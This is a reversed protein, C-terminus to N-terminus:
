LIIKKFNKLWSLVQHAPMPKSLWYGQIYDCKMQSLIKATELNEVGEAIVKLELLHGLDITSRVIALNGSESCLKLIFTKDIKLENVPLKTLQALSSYGTGFDDIALLIGLNSIDDLVKITTATDQMATSETIEISLQWPKIDYTSFLYSLKEPLTPDTLDSTSLNIAVSLLHGRQKWIHLQQFINKLMWQSLISMNGSREALEIFEDPFILGLTPHYWRMLAEFHEVRGSKIDLKPQYEIWFEHNALAPKLSNIIIEKRRYVEELEDTYLEIRVDKNRAQQLAIDARRLLTQTDDGNLPHSVQGVSFFPNIKINEGISVPIALTQFLLNLWNKDITEYDTVILFENNHLRFIQNSTSALSSLRKAIISIYQDGIEYGFSANISRLHHLALRMIIFNEQENIKTELAEIITQYNHTTILNEHKQIHSLTQDYKNIKKSLSALSNTVSSTETYRHISKPVSIQRNNDISKSVRYLEKLPTSIYASILAVILALALLLIAFFILDKRYEFITGRISENKNIFALIKEQENKHILATIATSSIDTNNNESSNEGNNQNTMRMFHIRTNDLLASSDSAISDLSFGFSITGLFSPSAIFTTVSKYIKGNLLIFNSLNLSSPTLASSNILPTPESKQFSSAKISGELDTIIWFSDDETLYYNNILSSTKEIDNTGLLNFFLADNKLLSLSAELKNTKKDIKYRVYDLSKKSIENTRKNNKIYDTHLYYAGSFLQSLITFGLLLIFLQKRFSM